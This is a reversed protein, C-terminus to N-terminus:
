ANSHHKKYLTSEPRTTNVCVERNDCFVDTSEVILVGFMRLKYVLAEIIEVTNKIAIIESVFMSEEVSNQGKRFWIISASNCFLLIGTQSQRMETDGAHNM